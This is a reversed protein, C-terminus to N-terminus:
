AQKPGDDPEEDAGEDEQESEKAPDDQDLLEPPRYYVVEGNPHLWVLRSLGVRGEAPVAAWTRQLEKLAKGYEVVPSFDMVFRGPRRPKDSM